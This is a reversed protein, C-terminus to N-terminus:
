YRRAIENYFDMIWDPVKNILEDTIKLDHTGHTAGSEKAGIPWDCSLDYGIREGLVKVQGDRNKFDDIHIYNIDCQSDYYRLNEWQSEFDQGPLVNLGFPKEKQTLKRDRRRFSEMVLAPHRMPSVVHIDKGIWKSMKDHCFDTLHAKIKYNVGEVMYLPAEDFDSFVQKSLLHTGTHM